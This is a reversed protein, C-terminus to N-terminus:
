AVSSVNGVSVSFYSQSLNDVKTMASWATISLNSHSINWYSQSINNLQSSVNWAVSSVNGVSVSYYSQSLNSLTPCSFKNSVELNVISCNNMCVNYVFCCNDIIAPDCYMNVFSVNTGYLNLISANTVSSNILSASECFIRSVNHITNGQMNRCAAGDVNFISDKSSLTAIKVNDIKFDIDNQHNIQNFYLCKRHSINREM